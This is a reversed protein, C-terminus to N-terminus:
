GALVLNVVQSYDEVTIEEDSNTDAALFYAYTLQKHGNTVLEVYAADLVDVASDGNIDGQVILTYTTETSADADQIQLQSGTGYWCNNQYEYSPTLIYNTNENIHVIELFDRCVFQKTFILNNEVDIETKDKAYMYYFRNQCLTSNVTFSSVIKGDNDIDTSTMQCYYYSYKSNEGPDFENTTAGEIAIDDYSAKNDYSGYWQYTRNFGRADFVLPKYSYEDWITEIDEAIATQPSLEVFNVKNTNAWKEAYTDKSGYITYVREGEDLYYDVPVCYRMTSPLCLEVKVPKYCDWGYWEGPSPLEFLYEIKSFDARKISCDAFCDISPTRTYGFVRISPLDVHTLIMNCRFFQTIGEQSIDFTWDPYEISEIDMDALPIYVHVLERCEKFAGDFIKTCKPLYVERLQTSFYFADTLLTTVNPFNVGSISTNEFVSGGIIELNPMTVERLNSCGKFAATGLTKINNGTIFCVYDNEYIFSKHNPGNWLSMDGLFTITDPLVIGVIKVNTFLNEAIDNVEIGNITEPIKLYLADGTYGTITGAESITFMDDTGLKASHIITKSFDSRKGNKYAVATIEFVDGEFIIPETYLTGNAPSPYTQDMTYYIDCGDEASLEIEVAGIYVGESLSFTPKSLNNMGFLDLANIIGNYFSYKIYPESLETTCGLMMRLKEERTLTPHVNTFMAYVGAIYPSSFSTGSAVGYRNGIQAVAVADGPAVIKVPKGYSTSNAPLNKRTSSAVTCAYGSVDLASANKVGLDSSTNGASNTIFCGNFYAYELTELELEYNDWSSCSISIIKVGDLVAKLVAANFMVMTTEGEDTGIRYNAIKVNPSTTKVIISSVMTGHGYVDSENKPDGDGSSNFYTRTIRGDFLEHDLDVGTDIVAVTIDTFTTDSYANLIKDIGTANLSWCNHFEEKTYVSIEGRGSFDTEFAKQFIDIDISIINDNKLYNEYALKTTEENEYQLIYFNKFGSVVDVASYTDFPNDSQVILRCTRFDLEPVDDTENQSVSSASYYMSAEDSTNESSINESTVEFNKNADYKKTLENIGNIFGSIDSSRIEETTASVPVCLISILLSICLISSIIKKM